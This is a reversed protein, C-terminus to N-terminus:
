REIAFSPTDVIALRPLPGLIGLPVVGGIHNVRQAIIDLHNVKDRPILALQRESSESATTAM